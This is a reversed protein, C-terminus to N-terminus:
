EKTPDFQPHLPALVEDLNSRMWENTQQNLTISTLFHGRNLRNTEKMQEAPDVPISHILVEVDDECEGEWEPFFDDLADTGDIQDFYDFLDKDKITSDVRVYATRTEKREQHLEFFRHTPTENKDM